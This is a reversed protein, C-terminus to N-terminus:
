RPGRMHHPGAGDIHDCLRGAAWLSLVVCGIGTVFAGLMGAVCVATM